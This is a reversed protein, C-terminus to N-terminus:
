LSTVYLCWLGLLRAGKMFRCVLPHLGMCKDGFGLKCSPIAAVSISTPFASDDDEEVGDMDLLDSNSNDEAEDIGTLEEGDTPGWSLLSM